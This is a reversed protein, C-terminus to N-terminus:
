FINNSLYDFITEQNFEPIFVSNVKTQEDLAFFFPFNFQKLWDPANDLYRISINTRNLTKKFSYYNGLNTASYIITINFDNVREDTEIIQEVINEVCSSCHKDSAYLFVRNSYDTLLSQEYLGDKIVVKNMSLQRQISDQLAKYEALIRGNTKFDNKSNQPQMCGWLLTSIITVLVKFPILYNM